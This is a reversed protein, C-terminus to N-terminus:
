SAICYYFPPYAKEDGKMTMRFRKGNRQKLFFFNPVDRITRIITRFILAFSIKKHLQFNIELTANEMMQVDFFTLFNM